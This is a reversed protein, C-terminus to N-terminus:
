RPKSDLVARTRPYITEGRELMEVFQRIRAARTEPRKASQIRYLFAYRNTSDLTGFLAKAAPHQALASEFDPPVAVTRQSDYAAEWRGDTKALEVQRLGAPHMRGAAILAEANARNV